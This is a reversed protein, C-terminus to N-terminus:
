PYAALPDAAVAEGLASLSRRLGADPLARALGEVRAQAERTHRGADRARGARRAIEALLSHARWAAPPYGIREAVGLALVLTQEAEDRRDAAVFARGRLELARAELKLVGHLRAGALEDATSALAREPDGRALAVRALGDHVHLAYRWRQWLDGPRDLEELLPTLLDLAREPEGTATYGNALNVTANAYLEPAGAVLELKVMEGALAVGRSDYDRARQHNGIEAHCWGLTNLLRAKMARDGCRDCDDLAKDFVELAQAYEGLSALSLGLVWRPTISILGLQLERALELARRSQDRAERFFGMQEQYLAREVLATVRAELDGSREAIEMAESGFDRRARMGTNASDVLDLAVRGFAEGEAAGCARSLAVAQNAAETCAEYDHGWVFSWAALGLSRARRADRDSVAAARLWAQGSQPFESMQFLTSGLREELARRRADLEPSGLRDVIALARRCHEVVAHNAYADASKRAALEHYELARPWQEAREFHHALAEYHEVLRDRYLEEIASGVIQHLTRRRAVLISEYAVDHTLAHKFMFALEPHAAKEYILELARLEGIVDQVRDGAERVQSLLRLAFERGIVAAVQIARKPEEPLRDIRAMLIDQIRDPVSLDELRRTLEVRGGELRQLIGEELLSKMVEEVFFPNGEAKAVLLELLAEPLQSGEAAALIAQAMGSMASRPLAQLSLRMHYSRDGFPQAYGPRYTLLLLVRATPIADALFVLFEESAADSWHLDEIALVLPEREAQRLLLTQLARYTESRRDMADMEAFREDSVPLSLLQCVFPRMWQLDGGLAQMADQVKQLASAEDDRDDISFRRRLADALAQFPTSAAYPSCRGELWVHAEDLRRRFEYLLRSKGIGAEGVLMVVQGRGERAADFAARLAALEHERGVLPTLGADVAAEIRDTVGREALVRYAQLPQSKGKVRLAGLDEVEFFGSVLHETAESILVSGPPASQELRAALNTTDGVATYDMRLDDGISGVVVPGTHIGIRWRFPHAHRERVERDLPALARQIALATLVARRPADELALPAGFLAMVGDGTFQNVTGEYRHVADLILGFCRDLLAHMEEPGLREALPTSDVVDAFVVTVHKREGELASRHSLIRDALHKPTYSRPDGLAVAAPAAPPEPVALAVVARGCRDCFSADPRLARGCSACAGPLSAGCSDCFRADPRNERRCQPCLM